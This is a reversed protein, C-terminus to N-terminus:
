PRTGPRNRLSRGSGSPSMEVKRQCGFVPVATFTPSDAGGVFQSQPVDSRPVSRCGSFARPVEAGHAAGREISAKWSGRGGRRPACPRAREAVTLRRSARCVVPVDVTPREVLEARHVRLRPPLVGVHDRVSGHAPPLAFITVFLAGISAAGAATLM